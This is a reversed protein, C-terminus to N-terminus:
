PGLPENGPNAGASPAAARHRSLWDVVDAANRDPPFVPYLVKAVVGQEGILALRKYFRGGEFEFTPLSLTAALVFREDSVIPFPMKTRAAFEEREALPQSSGGAVRAAFSALDALVVDGTSSPLVVHLARVGPLDDATGDDVPVPLGEPFVYPDHTMEGDRDNMSTVKSWISFQRTSLRRPAFSDRTRTIV